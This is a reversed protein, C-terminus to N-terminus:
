RDNILFRVYNLLEKKHLKYNAEIDAWDEPYTAGKMEHDRTAAEFLAVKRYLTPPLNVPKESAPKWSKIKHVRRTIPHMAHLHM